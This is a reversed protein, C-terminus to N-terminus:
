EARGLAIAQDLPGLSAGLAAATDRAVEMDKALFDGVSAAFATVSGRSAVATLARSAASGHPLAGLLAPEDVGLRAAFDVASALLGLQAAFLANNVLKVRQGAGLPGVHLIPDAYSALAPRVQDLADATGGAFLTLRGAAIDHPGGSVPADIVSIGFPAARTAIDEATRPSGTTHIVLTAGEPMADLLGSSLCVEQVQEDTFVCVLVAEAGDGVEAATAAPQAGDATLTARKDQSRALARVEHGAEILKRAMPHGMRGTGIFGLRM